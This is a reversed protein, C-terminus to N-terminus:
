AAATGDAGGARDDDRVPRGIVLPVLGALDELADDPSFTPAAGAYGEPRALRGGQSPASIGALVGCAYRCAGTGCPTVVACSAALSAGACASVAARAAQQLQARLAALHRKRRVAVAAAAMAAAYSFDAGFAARAAMVDGAYLAAPAAREAADMAARLAALFASKAIHRGGAGRGAMALSAAFRDRYPEGAAHYDCRALPSGAQELPQRIMLGPSDGLVVAAEQAQRYTVSVGGVALVCSALDPFRVPAPTNVVTAAPQV